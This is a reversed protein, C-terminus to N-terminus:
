RPAWTHNAGEVDCEVEIPLGDLWTITYDDFDANNSSPCECLRQPVCGAAALVSVNMDGDAVVNNIAHDYGAELVHLQNCSCSAKRANEKMRFLNATGIAALIGIIVVVIMLEILTFGRQGSIYTGRCDMEDYIDAGPASGQLM